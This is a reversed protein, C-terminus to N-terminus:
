PLSSNPESHAYNFIHLINGRALPLRSCSHNSFLFIHLFLLLLFLIIQM